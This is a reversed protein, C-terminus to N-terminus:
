ELRIGVGVSKFCVICYLPVATNGKREMEGISYEKGSGSPGEGEGEGSAGVM